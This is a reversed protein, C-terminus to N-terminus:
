INISKKKWEVDKASSAYTVLMGGVFRFKLAAGEMFFENESTAHLVVKPLRDTPNMGQAYLRGRELTIIIEHDSGARYTGAFARLSDENLKRLEYHEGEDDLVAKGDVFDVDTATGKLFFHHAGAAYLRTPSLGATVSEVWLLGGSDLKVVVNQKGYYEGAFPRLESPSLRVTARYPTYGEWVWPLTVGTLRGVLEKFINEGNDSNTMIVFASGSGPFAIWYHQWGVGHREKFFAPGNPTTFLGWGLGYSLHIADNEKTTSTDLSPFEHLSCIAIQPSLMAQRSTASLGRGRLVAAM